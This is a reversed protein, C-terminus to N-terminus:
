ISNILEAIRDKVSFCNRVKEYGAKAIQAREEEHILYYEVKQLLDEIDTYMVLEKGDEFLEAIEPQYNTLCFGGCALIDFVRQPIGSEITRSTINLNIRSNHFVLPMEAQYDVTGKSILRPNNQLEQPLKSNSYLTVDFYQALSTLVDQRDRATVEMNVADAAMQVSDFLYLNGLALGCKDVIEKVVQEPLSDAVLNYGYIKSQARVVGELYGATYESFETVRMRNKEDNYLSGVFSIDCIYSKEDTLRRGDPNSSDVAAKASDYMNMDAALPFHYVAKAGSAQLSAAYAKDFCFIHNCENIITKSLLTYQPCDYIWSAYVIGNMQCIMSIMPFYDYSFVMDVKQAHLFAIFKQAFVADAHYDRIKESFTLVQYGLEQMARITMPECVSDWCYVAIKKMYDDEKKQRNYNREKHGIRWFKKM